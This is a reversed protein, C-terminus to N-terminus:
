SRLPAVERRRAHDIVREYSAVLRDAIPGSTRALARERAAEGLRRSLSPDRLLRALATALGGVDGPGFLLGTREDDVLDVIGGSRAGVLPCECLAGEVLSLGYGERESPLVVATASRMREALQEPSLVGLWRVQRAAGIQEALRELGEREPGAGAIELVADLKEAALRSMARIAVDIRKQRTLRAAIVFTPARPRGDPRFVEADAPMPLVECPPGPLRRAALEQALAESVPLVLEARNLVRRALGSLAPLRRVLRVDTGHLSVVLPVGARQTVDSTLWATPVWWHAHVLVPTLEANAEEVASRMAGFFRLALLPQRLAARHMEGTYALRQRGPPAYRFRRIEVGDRTEREAVDDAGPALVVVRWGRRPLERSLRHLFAGLFDDARRPYVHTTWLVTKM